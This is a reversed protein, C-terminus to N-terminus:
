PSEGLLKQHDKPIKTRNKQLISLSHWSLLASKPRLPFVKLSKEISLVCLSMYIHICFLLQTPFGQNKGTGKSCKCHKHRELDGRGDVQGLGQTRPNPVSMNGPRLQKFRPCLAEIRRCWIQDKQDRGM